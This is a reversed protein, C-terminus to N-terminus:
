DVETVSRPFVEVDFDPESASWNAALTHFIDFAFAKLEDEAFADEGLHFKLVEKIACVVKCFQLPTSYFQGAM